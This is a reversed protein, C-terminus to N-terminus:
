ILIFRFSSVLGNIIVEFQFFCRHGRHNTCLYKLTTLTLATADSFASSIGTVRPQKNEM